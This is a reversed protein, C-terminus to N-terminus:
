GQEEASGFGIQRKPKSPDKRPLKMLLISIQSVHQILEVPEGDGTKGSFSILSPNSWGLGELHFVITQGFNVLRVGVEHEDDMGREFNGIWNALRKHFESAYNAIVAEVIPNQIPHLNPLEFRAIDPVDPM